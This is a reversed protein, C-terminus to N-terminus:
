INEPEELPTASDILMVPIDKTVPYVLRCKECVIGNEEESLEIKGRCKPCVLVDLLNKPVKLM